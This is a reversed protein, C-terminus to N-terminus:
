IWVRSQKVQGCNLVNFKANLLEKYNQPNRTYIIDCYGVKEELYKLARYRREGSILMYVTNKGEQQPLVVLNHMLGNREIDEALTRIDEDNDDQRFVENDPNLRIDSLMIDRSAYEITKDNVLKSLLLEGAENNNCDMIAEKSPMVVKKANAKSPKTKMGM